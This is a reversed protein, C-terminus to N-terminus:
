EWRPAPGGKACCCSDCALFPPVRSYCSTGDFVCTACNNCGPNGAPKAGGSSSNGGKGGQGKIFAILEPCSKRNLEAIKSAPVNQAACQPICTSMETQNYSGVCRLAHECYGACTPPYQAAAPTGASPTTGGTGAIGAMGAGPDANETPTLGGNTPAAAPTTPAAPPAAGADTDDDVLKLRKNCGVVVALAALFFCVFTKKMADDVDTRM